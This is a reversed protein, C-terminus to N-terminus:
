QSITQESPDEEEAFGMSPFHLSALWPLILLSAMPSLMSGLLVSFGFRQTPPFNSLGFIGFGAGVLIMNGLIPKWLQLRARAWAEDRSVGEKLLIRVRILMHIMSDVGMGIAINAAPSSIMDLVIGFHGLLGLLTVPIFALGVTLALTTQISRSLSYGIISFIIVLLALGSLLSSRLLVALKGQLVYIGGTMEPLMGFKRIINELRKVNELRPYGTESEKMRMIFLAQKRDETIFFKTVQGYQPKELINLLWKRPLMRAILNRNAEAVVVPISMASGVAPGKELAEHIKMLIKL